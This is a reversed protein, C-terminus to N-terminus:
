MPETDDMDSDAVSMDEEKDFHKPSKFVFRRQNDIKLTQTTDYSLEKFKRYLIETKPRAEPEKNLCDILIPKVKKNFMEEDYGVPTDLDPLTGMIKLFLVKQLNGDVLKNGFPTEREPYIFDIATMAFSYVDNEKTVSKKSSDFSEPGAYVPTGRNSYLAQSGQTETHTVTRFYSIGFDALKVCPDDIVGVVLCNSSKLDCHIIDKQHLYSLGSLIQAALNLDRFQNRGIQKCSWEKVDM